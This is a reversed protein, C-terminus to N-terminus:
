YADCDSVGEGSHEAVADREAVGRVVPREAVNDLVHQDPQEHDQGDPAIQSALRALGGRHSPAICFALGLVANMDPSSSSETNGESRTMRNVTPTFRACFLADSKPATGKTTAVM